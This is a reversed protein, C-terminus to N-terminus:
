KVSVKKSSLDIKSFNKGDLKLRTIILVFDELQESPKRSVGFIAEQGSTFKINVLYQGEWTIKEVIFEQNSNFYSTVETTLTLRSSDITDNQRYVKNEYVFVRPLAAFEHASVANSFRTFIEEVKILIEGKITELVAVKETLPIMEFALQKREEETYNTQTEPNKEPTEFILEEIKDSLREKVYDANPDGFDKLIELDNRGFNLQDTIVTDLVIGESDVLYAGSLNIVTLDPTREQISIRIKDPLIKSVTVAKLFFDKQSLKSSVEGSRLLFINRGKIDEVLENLQTDTLRRNGYFEIQKIAFTPSSIFNRMVFILGVCLLFAILAFFIRRWQINLVSSSKRKPRSTLKTAIAKPPLNGARIRREQKQERKFINLRM